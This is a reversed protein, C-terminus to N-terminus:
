EVRVTALGKAKIPVALVSDKIELEGQLDEVLNCATAKKHPLAALNVHATTAQGGVEWLLLVIAKGDDSRHAGILMVNPEAVSLLSGSPGALVGTPNAGVM